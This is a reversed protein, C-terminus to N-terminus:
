KHGLKVKRTNSLADAGKIFLSHKTVQVSRKLGPSRVGDQREVGNEDKENDYVHEHQIDADVEV